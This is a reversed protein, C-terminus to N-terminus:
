AQKKNPLSSDRTFRKKNSGQFLKVKNLMKLRHKIFRNLLIRRKITERIPISVEKAANKIRTGKPSIV